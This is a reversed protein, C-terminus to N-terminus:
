NDMIRNIGTENIEFNKATQHKAFSICYKLNLFLIFYFLILKTNVYKTDKEHGCKCINRNVKNIIRIEPNCYLNSKLLYYGTKTIKLM